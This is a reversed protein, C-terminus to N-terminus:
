SIDFHFRCLDFVMYKCGEVVVIIKKVTCKESVQKFILGIM